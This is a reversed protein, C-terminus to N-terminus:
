RGGRRRRRTTPSTPPPASWCPRGGARGEAAPEIAISSLKLRQGYDREKAIGADPDGIPPVEEEPRAIRKLAFASALRRRYFPHLSWSTLDTAAYAIALLAAFIGAWLWLEDSSELNLMASMVVLALALALLPGAVTAIALAIVRRLRQGRGTYWKAVGAAEKAAARVSLWEARLQLTVAAVITTLSGAGLLASDQVVTATSTEGLKRVLALLVPM